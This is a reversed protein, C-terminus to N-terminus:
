RWPEWAGYPAPHFALVDPPPEALLPCEGALASTRPRVTDHLPDGRSRYTWPETRKAMFGYAYERAEKTLGKM